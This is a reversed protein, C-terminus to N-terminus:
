SPLLSHRGPLNVCVICPPLRGLHAFKPTQGHPEAMIRYPWGERDEHVKGDVSEATDASLRQTDNQFLVRVDIDNEDVIQRISFRECMEELEIGRVTVEITAVCAVLVAHQVRLVSGNARGGALVGRRQRM